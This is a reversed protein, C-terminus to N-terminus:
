ADINHCTLLKVPPYDPYFSDKKDAYELISQGVTSQIQDKIIAPLASTEERSEESSHYKTPIQQGCNVSTSGTSISSNVPSM